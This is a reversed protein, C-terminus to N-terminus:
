VGVLPVPISFAGVSGFSCRAFVRFFVLPGQVEVRVRVSVTEPEQRIQDEADRAIQQVLGPRALAKVSEFILVGYGPLHRYRGKPTTLRRFVRKKWSAVGEDYALDGTHDTVYSGLQSDDLALGGPSTPNALDRNSIALEALPPPVAARLGLLEATKTAVPDSLDAARYLGNVAISYRAPYGSLRRDTWVELANPDASSRVARAPWVDRPPEGQDDRSSTVPAILYRSLRSADKPDLLGSWYVAADFRLRILNERVALASVLNLAM